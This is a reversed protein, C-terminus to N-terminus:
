WWSWGMEVAGWVVGLIGLDVLRMSYFSLTHMESPISDQRLRWFIVIARTSVRALMKGFFTMFRVGITSSVYFEGLNEGIQIRCFDVFKRERLPSSSFVFGGFFDLFDNQPFICFGFCGGLFWLFVSKKFVCKQDNEPGNERSNRLSKQPRFILHRCGASLCTWGRRYM